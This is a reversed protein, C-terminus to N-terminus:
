VAVDVTEGARSRAAPYAPQMEAVTVWGPRAAIVREVSNAVMNSSGIQADVGPRL